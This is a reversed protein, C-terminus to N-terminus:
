QMLKIFEQCIIVTLHSNDFYFKFLTTKSKKKVRQLCTLEESSTHKQHIYHQEYVLVFLVHFFYRM